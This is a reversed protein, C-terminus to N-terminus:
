LPKKRPIGAQRPYRTSLFNTKRVCLIRRTFDSEPLTFVDDSETKGCLESLARDYPEEESAGKMAIFLGDKRVFPMCYELLINMPAVARAAACDFKERFKPDRGADEARMHVARIGKLGLESIVENLFNVRKALSDLLLVHLDPRMIKVPIGPFGAGTGIDAFNKAGSRDIYPLVTLSDVYHKIVIEKEDTVATLNMVSNWKLLIDGYRDFKEIQGPTLADAALAARAALAANAGRVFLERTEPTMM